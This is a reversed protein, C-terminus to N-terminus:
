NGSNVGATGFANTGVTSYTSGTTSYSNQVSSYPLVTQPTSTLVGLGTSHYSGASSYPPLSALTTQVINTPPVSYNHHPLQHSTSYNSGVVGGSTFTGNPHTTM